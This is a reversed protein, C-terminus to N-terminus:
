HYVGGPWCTGNLSPCITESCSYWLFIYIIRVLYCCLCSSRIKRIALVRIKREQPFSPWFSFPLYQFCVRVMELSVISCIYFIFCCQQLSLNGTVGYQWRIMSKKRGLKPTNITTFFFAVTSVIFFPLCYGYSTWRFARKKEQLIFHSVSLIRM